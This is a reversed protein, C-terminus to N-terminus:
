AKPESEAYQSPPVGYVERFLRGFSAQSAFGVEFAVEKVSMAGERLYVTAQELKRRRMLAAPSEETLAGLKRFLQRRSMSLAEALHDVGFHANSLHAQIMEEVKAMFAAELPPLVSEAEPRVNNKMESFRARLRQREAILTRVRVQVEEANFPKPLYADAGSEYGEIRHEVEAKATLLVVPIHSTREDAKLAACIELGDMEPMMVDSLVLDPVFQVAREFGIRGNEAEIITFHDELHARIYARMDANDDVVLVV